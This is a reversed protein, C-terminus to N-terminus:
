SFTDTFWRVILYSNFPRGQNVADSPSMMPNRIYFTRVSYFREVSAESVNVNAKMKAPM